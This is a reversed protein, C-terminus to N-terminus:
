YSLYNGLILPTEDFVSYAILYSVLCKIVVVLSGGYEGRMAYMRESERLGVSLKKGSCILM